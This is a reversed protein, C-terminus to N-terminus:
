KYGLISTIYLLTSAGGQWHIASDTKNIPIEANSQITIGTETMIALGYKFYIYTATSLDNGLYSNCLALKVSFTATTPVKVKLSNFFNDNSKFLVEIYKYQTLDLNSVSTASGNWVEYPQLGNIYEQSYTNEQSTGYSNEIDGNAPTVPAIKKIRM